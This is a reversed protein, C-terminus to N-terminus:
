PMCTKLKDQISRATKAWNTCLDICVDVSMWYNKKQDRVWADNNSGWFEAAMNIYTQGKITSVNMNYRKYESESFRVSLLTNFQNESM